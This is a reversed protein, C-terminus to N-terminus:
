DRRGGSLKVPYLQSGRVDARGQAIPVVNRKSDAELFDAEVHERIKDSPLEGILRATGQSHKDNMPPNHQFWRRVYVVSAEDDFMILDRAVLEGRAALYQELKWGLDSIAYGDPVEYAGASTMHESTLFYFMLLKADINPLESFRRSRWLAGGSIKSFRKSM